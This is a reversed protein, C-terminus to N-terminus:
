LGAALSWSTIRMWASLNGIEPASPCGVRSSLMAGVAGLLLYVTTLALGLAEAQGPAATPWPRLAYLGAVAISALAPAALFYTLDQRPSSTATM